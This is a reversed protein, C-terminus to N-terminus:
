AQRVAESSYMASYIIRGYMNIMKRTFTNM